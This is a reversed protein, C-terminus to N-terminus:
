TCLPTCRFPIILAEDYGQGLNFPSSWGQGVLLYQTHHRTEMDHAPMLVGDEIEVLVTKEVHNPERLSSRDRVFEPGPANGEESVGCLACPRSQEFEAATVVPAALLGSNM